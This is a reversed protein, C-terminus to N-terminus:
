LVRYVEVGLILLISEIETRLFSLWMVKSSGHEEWGHTLVTGPELESGGLSAGVHLHDLVGLPSTTEIQFNPRTYSHKNKSFTRWNWRPTIILDGLSERPNTRISLRGPFPLQNLKLQIM